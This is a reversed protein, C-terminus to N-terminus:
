KSVVVKSKSIGGNETQAHIFYIGNSLNSLDLIHQNM